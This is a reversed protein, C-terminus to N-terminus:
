ETDFQDKYRNKLPHGYEKESQVKQSAQKSFANIVDAVVLLISYLLPPTNKVCSSFCNVINSM